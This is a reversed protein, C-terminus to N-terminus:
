FETNLTMLAARKDKIDSSDVINWFLSVYQDAVDYIKAAEAQAAVVADLEAFSTVGWPVYTYYKEKDERSVHLVAKTNVGLSTALEDIHDKFQDRHEGALLEIVFGKELKAAAAMQGVIDDWSQDPTVQKIIHENFATVAEKHRKNRGLM